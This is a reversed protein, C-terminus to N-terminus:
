LRFQVEHTFNAFDGKLSGSSGRQSETLNLKLNKSSCTVSQSILIDVSHSTHTIPSRHCVKCTHTMFRRPPLQPKNEVHRKCFPVIAFTYISSFRLCIVQGWLGTSTSCKATSLVFTLFRKSADLRSLKKHFKCKLSRSDVFTMSKLNHHLSSYNSTYAGNLVETPETSSDSAM